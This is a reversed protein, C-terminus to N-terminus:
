YYLIVSEYLVLLVLTTITNLLYFRLISVEYLEANNIINTNRNDIFQLIPLTTSTSSEINTILLDYYINDPDNDQITLNQIM